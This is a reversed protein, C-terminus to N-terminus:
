AMFSSLETAKEGFAGVGILIFGCSAMAVIPFTRLGTGGNTATERDWGIPLALLYARVMDVMHSVVDAWALAQFRLMCTQKGVNLRLIVWSLSSAQASEKPSPLTPPPATTKRAVQRSNRRNQWASFLFLGGILVVSGIVIILFLSTSITHGDM